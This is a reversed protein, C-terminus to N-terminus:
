GNQGNKIKNLAKKVYNHIDPAEEDMNDPNFYEPDIWGWSDNTLDNYFSTLFEKVEITIKDM